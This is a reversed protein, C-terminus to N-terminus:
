LTDSIAEYDDHTTFFRLILIDDVTQFYHKMYAPIIVFDGPSVYLQMLMNDIPFYFAGTGKIVVRAEDFAHHHLDKAIMSVCHNQFLDYRVFDFNNYMDKVFSDLEIIETQSIRINYKELEIRILLDNNIFQNIKNDVYTYLIAM